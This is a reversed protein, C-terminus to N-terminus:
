GGPGRICEPQPERGHEDLPEEGRIRILMSGHADFAQAAQRVPDDGPRVPELALVAHQPEGVRHHLLVAVILAAPMRREDGVVLEQADERQQQEPHRDQGPHQGIM